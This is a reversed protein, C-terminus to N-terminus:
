VCNIIESCCRLLVFIILFWTRAMHRCIVKQPAFDGDTRLTLWIFAKIDEYRYGRIDEYGGYSAYICLSLVGDCITIGAKKGMLMSICPSCPQCARLRWLFADRPISFLMEVSFSRHCSFLSPRAILADLYAICRRIRRFYSLRFYHLHLPFLLLTAM